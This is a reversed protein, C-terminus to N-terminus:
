YVNNNLVDFLLLADDSKKFVIEFDLNHLFEHYHYFYDKENQM